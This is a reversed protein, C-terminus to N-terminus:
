WTRRRRKKSWRSRPRKKGRTTSPSARATPSPWSSMTSGTASCLQPGVLPRARARGQTLGGCPQKKLMSNTGLIHNGSSDSIMFGYVAEEVDREAVAELELVLAGQDTLLEPVQVSTYRVDGEGWRQDDAQETAAPQTEHATPTFLQTYQTAVDDADGEAELRTDEILIARDCFERVLSM